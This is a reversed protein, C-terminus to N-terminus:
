YDESDGDIFILSISKYILIKLVKHIQNQSKLDINSNIAFSVNIADSPYESENSSCFRAEDVCPKPPM